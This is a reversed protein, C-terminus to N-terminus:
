VRHQALGLSYRVSKEQRADAVAAFYKPLVGSRMSAFTEGLRIFFPNPTATGPVPMTPNGIAAAIFTNDFMIKISSNIIEASNCGFTHLM